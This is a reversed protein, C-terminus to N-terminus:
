MGKVVVDDNIHMQGSLDLDTLQRCSCLLATAASVTLGSQRLDRELYPLPLRLTTLATCHRALNYFGFTGVTNMVCLVGYRTDNEFHLVELLPCNIAMYACTKDSLAACVNSIRLERLNCERVCARLSAENTEQDLVMCRQQSRWQQVAARLRRCTTAVFCSLEWSCPDYKRWHMPDYRSPYRLRVSAEIIVELHAPNALLSTLPSM